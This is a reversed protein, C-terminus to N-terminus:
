DSLKKLLKIKLLQQAMGNNQNICSAILLVSLLTM